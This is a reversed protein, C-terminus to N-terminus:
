PATTATAFDSPSPQRTRRRDALLETYVREQEAVAARIDFRASTTRAASSMASRLGPDQALRVIADALAQPDGPAVLDGNEGPVVVEPVGGVATSVVPLGLAFSEMVAVPLGEHASALAFIDAAALLDPVDRRLGLLTFSSELGAERVLAAVDEALPGQGVAVFRLRPEAGVALRAARVLNPYDKTRRLNAVTIVLIADDAVGLERRVDARERRGERIGALDIGYTLVRVHRRAVPWITALVQDSVAWDYDDLPITLGNLWRTPRRHSTWENHETAVMVPRRAPPLTLSVLRALGALVPSHAHVVDTSRLAERLEVLQALRSSRGAGLRRAPVGAAAFDAVLHTKDPRLYAVQFTFREHDSVRAAQLLLQEAGGPGLGKVLSLVRIRSEPARRDGPM